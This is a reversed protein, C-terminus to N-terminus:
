EFFGLGEGVFEWPPAGGGGGDVLEGGGRVLGKDVAGGQAHVGFGGGAGEVIEGVRGEVFIGDDEVGDVVGAYGFEDLLGLAHGRRSSRGRLARPQGFRLCGVTRGYRGESRGGGRM